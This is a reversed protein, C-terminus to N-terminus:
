HPRAFVRSKTGFFHASFVNMKQYSIPLIRVPAGGRYSVTGLYENERGAPRINLIGHSLVSAIALLALLELSTGLM